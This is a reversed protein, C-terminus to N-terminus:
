TGAMSWCLRPRDLGQRDFLRRLCVTGNQIAEESFLIDLNSGEAAVGPARERYRGRRVISFKVEPVSEPVGPRISAGTWDAQWNLYSVVDRLDAAVFTPLLYRAHLRLGIARAARSVVRGLFPRGFHVDAPQRVEELVRDIPDQYVARHLWDVWRM